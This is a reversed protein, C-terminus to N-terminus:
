EQRTFLIRQEDYRYALGLVMSIEDLVSELEQNNLTSTFTLDRPVSQHLVIEIGYFDELEDCVNEISELYFFLMGTKWSLFNRDVTDDRIM